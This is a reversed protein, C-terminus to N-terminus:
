ILMKAAKIFTDFTYEKDGTSELLTFVDESQYELIANYLLHALTNTDGDSAFVLSQIFATM